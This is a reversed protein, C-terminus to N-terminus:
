KKICLAALDTWGLYPQWIQCRVRQSFLEGFTPVGYAVDPAYTRALDLDLRGYATYRAQGILKSAADLRRNVAPSRFPHIEGQVRSDFYVLQGAPDLDNPYNGGNAGVDWNQGGLVTYYNSIPVTRIEPSLGIARLADAVIQAKEKSRDDTTAYVSVPGHNGPGALHRAEALDPRAPYVRTNRYGPMGPPLYHDIPTLPPSFLNRLAPRDIAFNLARRMRVNSFPPRNSNLIIWGVSEEPHEFWRHDGSSPGYLRELRAAGNTPNALAGFNYDAHNHEVDAQSVRPSVDLEIDIQALRHPRPGRYYPNRKLILQEGPSHAAIYYPGAAPIPQGNTDKPTGIPVACSYPQALVAPLDPAPKKLRITLTNGHAVLGAYGPPGERELSYKFTTATVGQGSSFRLGPRITFTYTRGGNTITPWSRAADPVLPPGTGPAKDPYNILKLCTAQEVDWANPDYGVAPDLSAFDPASLEMRPVSSTAVGAASSTFPNHSVTVWVLGDAVAVGTPSEGLTITQKKGTKPDIETLTGSRSNAVWVRGEGVAIGTPHQGVGIQRKIDNHSPDIQAVLNDWRDAVWVAGAGTAIASPEDGFTIPSGVVEGARGIQYIQKDTDSVVWTSHFGIAVGPVAQNGVQVSMPRRKPTRADFRLAHADYNAVWVESGRVAIARAVLACCGSLNSQPLLRKATVKRYKPDIQYLDGSTDGTVAWVHGATAAIGTPSGHALPVNGMFQRTRADIETVTGEDRNGVWVKGDAAAIPGPRAGVPITKVVKGTKPDIAVVSNAQVTASVVSGGSSLTFVPIAVAAAIVGILAAAAASRGRLVPRQRVGPEAVIAASSPSARLAPDHQLIARELERLESSPELGLQDALVRRWERYVELAEAQRGTRYLALILQGRLRERLPHEAILAELEGVLGTHDGAELDADIRSELVTLRLEELRSIDSALAPEFALDELPKGRWLALAERLKNARERAPLNEADASLREFRELDLAGPETRLAYGWARTAVVEPGLEKRLRSVHTRIAAAANRPAKEAWLQDVLRDIAVVENAHLLLFALVARRKTGGLELQREGDWVELSGLIRFDM